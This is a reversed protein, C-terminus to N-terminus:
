SNWKTTTTYTSENYYLDYSYFDIIDCNDSGCDDWCNDFFKKEKKKGRSEHIQKGNNRESEFLVSFVCKFDQKNRGKDLFRQFIGLKQVFISTILCVLARNM